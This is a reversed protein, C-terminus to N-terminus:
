DSILNPLYYDNVLDKSYFLGLDTDGWSCRQSCTYFGGFGPTYGVSVWKSEVPYTMKCWCGDDVRHSDDAVGTELSDATSGEPQYEGLFIVGRYRQGGCQIIWDSNGNTLNTCPTNADVQKVCQTAAIAPTALITGLATLTLLKKM